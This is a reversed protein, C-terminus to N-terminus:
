SPAATPVQDEVPAQAVPLTLTFTAGPGDTSALVLAGGMREALERGAQRQQGDQM